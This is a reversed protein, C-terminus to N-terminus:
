HSSKRRQREKIGEIREAVLRKLSPDKLLRRYEKLAEEYRGMEELAVAIKFRTEPIISSGRYREVIERYVTLAKKTKGEIFYSDGITLQVKPLIKLTPFRDMLSSLEVRAQEFDKLEMYALGIRYIVEGEEQPPLRYDELLREYEFIARKYDKLKDMYIDAIKRKAKIVEKAKPYLLILRSFSDIAERFRSLYLDNIVGEMYLARPAFPSEPYLRALDAYTALAEEYRGDRLLSRAKELTKSDEQKTCATLFLILFLLIISRLSLSFEGM